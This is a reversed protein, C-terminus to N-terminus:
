RGPFLGTLFEALPGDYAAEALFETGQQNGWSYSIVTRGRFECFDVDSNNLNMAGAVLKRQDVTLSPNAVRRDEDAHRLLPNLPSAEWRVLDQSRVVHTEYSPGPRAELYTMYFQGGLFRISPCASYRERTFVCEEPLMKWALLDASEAFFNTFRVGVVAPPEGVEVAMLSRGGARCVSTNYLGWGPTTLAPRTEWRELDRSTFVTVTPGGWRSVGYVFMADGQAHACGLHYGRAFAPTARNSEADVFRFYSDGTTNAHYEKRVSEFRYLKGRLVVPTAEVLGCDITGLKRLKPRGPGPVARRGASAVPLAAPLAQALFARRALPPESV